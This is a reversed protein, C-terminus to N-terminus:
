AVKFAARIKQFIKDLNPEEIPDLVGSRDKAEYQTDAKTQLYEYTVKSVIGTSPETKDYTGLGMYFFEDFFYALGNATKQGPMSAGYLKSGDPQERLESKATFYVNKEPLDRFQRILVTVRDQMNGYAARPDKSSAKEESLCKEAIESISDLCATDYNKAYPDDRLWLYFDQLDQISNIIALPINADAISLTGREASAIIPRPATKILRTKGAGTRGHVCVKIGHSVVQQGSTSWQLPM